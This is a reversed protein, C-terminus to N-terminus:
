TLLSQSVRSESTSHTNSMWVDYSIARLSYNYIHPKLLSSTEEINYVMIFYISYPHRDRM